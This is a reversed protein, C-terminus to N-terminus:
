VRIMAIHPLGDELYQNGTKKFGHAAYFDHLYTQASIRIKRVEFFEEIAQVSAKFIEHGYGANRFVPDCVVRGVSAEEFYDGPRFCRAYAILRNKKWGLVHLAVPDYGDPDQYVCNQEVVFVKSRLKLVEYLSAASLEPFAKIEIKM